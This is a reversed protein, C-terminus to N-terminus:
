WYPTGETPASMRQCGADGSLYGPWSDTKTVGETPPATNKM